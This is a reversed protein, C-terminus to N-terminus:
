FVYPQSPCDALHTVIDAVVNRSFNGSKVNNDVGGGSIANFPWALVLKARGVIASHMFYITCFYVGQLGPSFM